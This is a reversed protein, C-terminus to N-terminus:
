YTVNDNYFQSPQVMNNMQLPRSEADEGSPENVDNLLLTAGELVEISKEYLNHGSARIAETLWLTSTNIVLLVKEPDDGGARMRDNFENLMFDYSQCLLEIENSLRRGM